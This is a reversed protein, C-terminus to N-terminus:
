WAVAKSLLRVYVDFLVRNISVVFRAPILLISTVMFDRVKREGGESDM